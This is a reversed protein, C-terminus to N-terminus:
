DNAKKEYLKRMLENRKSAFELFAGSLKGSLFDKEVKSHDEKFAFEYTNGSYKELEPMEGTTVCIATAASIDRTKYM